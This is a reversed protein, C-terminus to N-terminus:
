CAHKEIATNWDSAIKAIIAEMDQSTDAVGYVFRTPGTAVAHVNIFTEGSGTRSEYPELYLQTLAYGPPIHSTLAARIDYIPHDKCIIDIIMGGDM